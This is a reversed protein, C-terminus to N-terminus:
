KDEKREFLANWRNRAQDAYYIAWEPIDASLREGMRAVDTASEEEGGESFAWWLGDPDTIVGFLKERYRYTGAIDRDDGLLIDLDDVM